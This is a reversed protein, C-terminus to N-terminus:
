WSASFSTQLTGGSRKETGTRRALDAKDFCLVRAGEDQAPSTSMNGLELFKSNSVVPSITKMDALHSAEEAQQQRLEQVERKYRRYNRFGRWVFFAAVIFFAAIFGIVLWFWWRETISSDVGVQVPKTPDLARAIFILGAFVHIRLKGGAKM